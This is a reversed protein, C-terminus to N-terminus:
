VYRLANYLKKQPKQSKESPHLSTRDETKINEVVRAYNNITRNTTHMRM